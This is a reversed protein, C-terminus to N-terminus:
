LHREADMRQHLVRIVEIRGKTGIRYFLVHSGATFKFYGVRILEASRGRRQGSALDVCVYIIQRVYRDARDRGWHKASYDWIDSLDSRARPSLAYDTM